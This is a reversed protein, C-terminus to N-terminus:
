IFLDHLFLKKLTQKRNKKFTFFKLKFIKMGITQWNFFFPYLLLWFFYIM